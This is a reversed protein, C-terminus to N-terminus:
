IYVAWSACDHRRFCFIYNRAEVPVFYDRCVNGANLEIPQMGNRQGPGRNRFRRSIRCCDVILLSDFLGVSILSGSTHTTGKLSLTGAGSLLIVLEAWGGFLGDGL